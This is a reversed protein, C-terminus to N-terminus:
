NSIMKPLRKSIHGTMIKAAETRMKATVHAYTDLTTQINQHGLMGQNTKFM